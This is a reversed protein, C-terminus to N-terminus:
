GQFANWGCQLYQDPRRRRGWGRFDPDGAYQHGRAVTSIVFKGDSLWCCDWERHGRQIPFYFNAETYNAAISRQINSSVM